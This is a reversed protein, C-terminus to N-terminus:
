CKDPQAKNDTDIRGTGQKYIESFGRLMMSIPYM